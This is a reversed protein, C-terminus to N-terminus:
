RSGRFSYGRRELKQSPSVDHEGFRHQRHKIGRLLLRCRRFVRRRGVDHYGRLCVGLWGGTIIDAYWPQVGTYRSHVVRRTRQSGCRVYAHTHRVPRAITKSLSCPHGITGNRETRKTGESLTNRCLHGNKKQFSRRAEPPRTNRM